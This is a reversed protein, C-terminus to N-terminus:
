TSRMPAISSILALPRSPRCGAAGGPLSRVRPLLRWLLASLLRRVWLGPLWLRLWLGPLRLRLRLGSLLLQLGAAMAGRRDAGRHRLRRLGVGLWGLPGGGTEDHERRSRRRAAHRDISTEHARRGPEENREHWAM